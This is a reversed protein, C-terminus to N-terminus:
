DTLVDSAKVWEKDGQKAVPTEGEIMSRRKLERLKDVPFPGHTEDNMRVWYGDTVEPRTAPAEVSPAASKQAVSPTKPQMKILQKEFAILRDVVAAAAFLVAAILISIAATTEHMASKAGAFRVVGDVLALVTLLVLVVRM